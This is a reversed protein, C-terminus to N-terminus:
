SPTVPQKFDPFRTMLVTKLFKYHGINALLEKLRREGNVIETGFLDQHHSDLSERTLYEDSDNGLTVAARALVDDVRRKLGAHEAEAAKLATDISNAITALRQLDTEADRSSSRAKFYKHARARLFLHFM